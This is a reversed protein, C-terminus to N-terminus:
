APRPPDPYGGGGEGEDGFAFENQEVRATEAVGYKFGPLLAPAADLVRERCAHCYEGSALLNFRPPDQVAQGCTFCITDHSGTM